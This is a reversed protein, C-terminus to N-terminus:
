KKYKEMCWEAICIADSRGDKVGGRPGTLDVYPYKKQVYLVSPKDQPNKKAPVRRKMWQQPTVEIFSLGALKIIARWEGVHQHFTAASKNGDSNLVKQKEIAVVNVKYLDKWFVLARFMDITNEWDKICATPTQENGCCILLAMAGNAGPDVGICTEYM